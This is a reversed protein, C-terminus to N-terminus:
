KFHHSALHDDLADLCRVGKHYAYSHENRQSFNVQFRQLLLEHASRLKKGYDSGKNYTIITREKNKEKIVFPFVYKDPNDLYDKLVYFRPHVKKEGKKLADQYKTYDFTAM